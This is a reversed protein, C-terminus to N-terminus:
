PFVDNFYPTGEVEAYLKDHAKYTCTPLHPINNDIYIYVCVYVCTHIM